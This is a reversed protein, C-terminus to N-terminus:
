GDNRTGGTDEADDSRERRHLKLGAEMDRMHLSVVERMRDQDEAEVGDETPGVFSVTAEALASAGVEEEWAALLAATAQKETKLRRTELGQRCAALAERAQKLDFSPLRRALLRELHPRLEQPLADKVEDEGEAGTLLDGDQRKWLALVERNESEWLLDEQIVLGEPRLEPYRLLLALLFEERADGAPPSPAAAAAPAMAGPRARRAGSSALMAALDRENVLALRSLRQLYHARVVPDAVAALLPLFEQALQSRGHPLTLDHAAASTELRYDLVPKAGEILARWAATDARIVDDPDLGEPLVAVRLEVAVATQYRVLGRWTVVPVAASGEEGALAGRVVDHGRVAAESGAADADLALVIQASLRKLLRVQRETLATGMSAVVNDFGHQHAAIADMYGEVIVARGERRIGDQARELAYLVGGKDFIPTQSTNLYKPLSDDLARAGFGIVRGRLDRIPFMLRGRFRDHPGSEGEVLLGAALLEADTFGEQRLRERMAEWAPPSYGLGFAEATPGDAGRRELYESAARGADGDLLLRRYWAAAAENAARLRERIRDEEQSVRREPLLVGARQALMRLAEPFELGEKRMVFAIADGGTGCAGFCHWSQRDPSVIFSPTRESHFPCIAKFSRGAKQLQVYQGIVDVIDLRAKVEQVENM